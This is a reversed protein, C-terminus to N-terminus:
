ANANKKSVNSVDSALRDINKNVSFFTMKVRRLITSFLNRTIIKPLDLRNKIVVINELKINKVTPASGNMVFTYNPLANAVNYFSGANKVNIFCNVLLLIVKNRLSDRNEIGKLVRRPAVSGDAPEAVWNSIRKRVNTM